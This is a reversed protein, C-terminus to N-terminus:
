AQKAPSDVLLGAVFVTQAALAAIGAITM